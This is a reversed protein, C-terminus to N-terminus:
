SIAGQAVLGDPFLDLSDLSDIARQYEATGLEARQLRSIARTLVAVRDRLRELEDIPIVPHPQYEDREILRM